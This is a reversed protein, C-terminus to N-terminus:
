GLLHWVILGIVVWFPTVLVLGWLFGRAFRLSDQQDKLLNNM